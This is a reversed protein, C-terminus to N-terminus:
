GAALIAAQEIWQQKSIRAPEPLEKKLAGVQAATLNAIESYSNLGVGNLAAVDDAGVQRILSLDDPKVDSSVEPTSGLENDAEIALESGASCPEVPVPQQTEAPDQNTRSAAGVAALQGTLQSTACARHSLLASIAQMVPADNTPTPAPAPESTASTTGPKTEPKTESKTESKAEPKPAGLAPPLPPPQPGRTEDQTSQPSPSVDSKVVLKTRFAEKGSPPPEQRNNPPKAKAPETETVSSAHDDPEPKDAELEEPELLERLSDSAALLNRWARFLRSERLKGAIDPALNQEVAQADAISAPPSEDAQQCYALWAPDSSM